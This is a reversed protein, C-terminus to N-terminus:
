RVDFSFSHAITRPAMRLLLHPQCQDQRKRQDADRRLHFHQRHKEFRCVTVCAIVNGPVCAFGADVIWGPLWGDLRDTRM